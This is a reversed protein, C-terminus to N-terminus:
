RTKGDALMIVFHGMKRVRGEVTKLTELRFLISFREGRGLREWTEWADGDARLLKEFDEPIQIDKGGSYAREWRGDETAARVEKMGAEAM